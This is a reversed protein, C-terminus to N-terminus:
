EPTQGALLREWIGFDTRPGGVTDAGYRAIQAALDLPISPATM